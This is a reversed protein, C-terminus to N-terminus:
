ARRSAIRRSMDIYFYIHINLAAICRALPTGKRGHKRIVQQIDNIVKSAVTLMERLYCDQARERSTIELRMSAVHEVANAAALASDHHVLYHGDVWPVREQIVQGRLWVKVVHTGMDRELGTYRQNTRAIGYFIKKPIGGPLNMERFESLGDVFGSPEGSADYGMEGSWLGNDVILCCYPVMSDADEEASFEDITHSSAARDSTAYAARHQAPFASDKINSLVMSLSEVAPPSLVKTGECIDRINKVTM